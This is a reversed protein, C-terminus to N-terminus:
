AVRQWGHGADNNGLLLRGGNVRSPVRLPRMLEVVDKRRPVRKFVGQDFLTQRKRTLCMQNSAVEAVRALAGAQLVTWGQWCIATARVDGASLQWRQADPRAALDAPVMLSYGTRLAAPATEPVAEAEDVSQELVPVGADLLLRRLEGIWRDVILRMPATLSPFGYGGVVHYGAALRTHRALESELALALDATLVDATRGAVVFVERVAPVPPAALHRRLRHDLRGWSFGFRVDRKHLLGLETIRGAGALGYVVPEESACAALVARIHEVPAVVLLLTSTRDRIIRVSPPLGEVHLCSTEHVPVIGAVAKRIIDM